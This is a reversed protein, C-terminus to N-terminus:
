ATDNPEVLFGAEGNIIWEDACSTCTQIPIAGMAMAELMSTSIGESLSHGV